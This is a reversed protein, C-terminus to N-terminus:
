SLGFDVVGAVATLDASESLQPFCSGAFLNRRNRSRKRASDKSLRVGACLIGSHISGLFLRHSTQQATCTAKILAGQLLQTLTSTARNNEGVITQVLALNEEYRIGSVDKWSARLAVAREALQLALEKEWSLM